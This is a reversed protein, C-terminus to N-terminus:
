RYATPGTPALNEMHFWTCSSPKVVTSGDEATSLSRSSLMPRHEPPVSIATEGVNLVVMVSGVMQVAADPGAWEMGDIFALTSSGMDTRTRIGIAADALGALKRAKSNKMFSFKLGPDRGKTTKVGGGVHLFPVYVAGPLSLAYLMMASERRESDEAKAWGYDASSRAQPSSTWKPLSYRWAATHGLPDRDWYAQSVRRQIETADWPCAVLSDDRLHHFWDEQLHRVASERPESLVAATLITTEGALEVEALQTQVAQTFARSNAAADPSGTEDNVPGLDVGDAGAALIATARESLSEADLELPLQPPSTEPDLESEDESLFARVIVKLGLRHADAIFDPLVTLGVDVRPNAPRILVAEFGLDAIDPLMEQVRKLDKNDYSGPLDCIVADRWWPALAGERRHVLRTTVTGLPAQM